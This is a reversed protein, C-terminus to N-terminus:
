QALKCVAAKPLHGSSFVHIKKTGLGLHEECMQYKWESMVFEFVMKFAKLKLISGMHNSTEITQLWVCSALSIVPNRCFPLVKKWKM